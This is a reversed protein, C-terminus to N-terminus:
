TPVVSDRFERLAGELPTAIAELSSAFDDLAAKVAAEVKLGEGIVHKFKRLFPVAANIPGNWSCSTKTRSCKSWM